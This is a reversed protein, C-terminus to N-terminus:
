LPCSVPLSPTWKRQSPRITSSYTFLIRGVPGNGSIEPLTFINGCFKSYMESFWQQVLAGPCLILIKPQRKKNLLDHIIIGAEITKGLGVEDALVYRQQYDSIVTGAVFAQHPHLDIRSSLLAHVGAGRKILKIYENYFHNRAGFIKYSGHQLTKLADLPNKAPPAKEIQGIDNESFTTQLGGGMEVTYTNPEWTNPPGWSKGIDKTKLVVGKEGKNNTCPTGIPLIARKLTEITFTM